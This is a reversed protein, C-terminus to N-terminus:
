RWVVPTWSQPSREVRQAPTGPPPLPWSWWGSPQDNYTRFAIRPTGAGPKFAAESIRLEATWAAPSSSSAVHWDGHQRTAGLAPTPQGPPIWRGSAATSVISSDLMRRLYWQRDGTQPAAGASGDPDLSVVFDDGWYFTSDSMVAAIYVFRAHRTIWVRTEGGATPIRVTPAGYEGEDVHGDLVPANAALPVILTDAAASVFGTATTRSPEDPACAALALALARILAGPM